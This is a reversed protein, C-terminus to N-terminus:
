LANEDHGPRSRKTRRPTDGRGHLRKIHVPCQGTLRWIAYFHFKDRERQRHRLFGLIEAVQAAVATLGGATALRGLFRWPPSIFGDAGRRRVDGKGSFHRNGRTQRRNVRLLVIRTDTAAVAQVGAAGESRGGCVRHGAVGGAGKLGCARPTWPINSAYSM